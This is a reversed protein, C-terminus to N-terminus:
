FRYGVEVSVVPFVDFDNLIRDARAANAEVAARVVPQTALFGTATWSYHSQGQFMAGADAAVLWHRGVPADYGIGAYPAVPAYWIPGSVDGVPGSYHLYTLYGQLAATVVPTSTYRARDQNFIVGGSLRFGGHFPYIDAIVSENQMNVQAHSLAQAQDFNWGIPLYHGSVRLGLLGGPDHLGLTGGVGLSSLGVSLSVPPTFWGQNAWASGPFFTTGALLIRFVSKVPQGKLRPPRM